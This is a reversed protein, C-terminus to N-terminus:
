ARAIKNKLIGMVDVKNHFKLIDVRLVIFNMLLSYLFLHGYELHHMVTNGGKKIM